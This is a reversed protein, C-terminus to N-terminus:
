RVQRLTAQRSREAEFAAEAIRLKKKWNEVVINQENVKLLKEHWEPDAQLEIEAKAASSGALMAIKKSAACWAKFHAEIRAAKSADDRWADVADSWQQLAEELEDDCTL